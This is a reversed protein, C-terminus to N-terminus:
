LEGKGVLEMEAQIVSIFAQIIMLKRLSLVSLVSRNSIPEGFSTAGKQESLTLIALSKTQGDVM